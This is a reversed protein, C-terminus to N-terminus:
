GAMRRVPEEAEEELEHCARRAVLPTSGRRTWRDDPGDPVPYLRDAARELAPQSALGDRRLVRRRVRKARALPGEGTPDREIARADRGNRLFEATVEFTSRLFSTAAAPELKWRSIDTLAGFFTQWRDDDLVRVMGHFLRRNAEFSLLTRELVQDFLEDARRNNRDLVLSRAARLHDAGIERDMRHEWYSHGVGKSATTLLLMRPVFVEHATVDAALHALYGLASARLAADSGAAEYMAWGTRWSHPHGGEDAYRKGFPIDAAVSGYLFDLPRASLASAVPPAFLDLSGLLELGLYVHAGPGWAHAAVPLLAVLM